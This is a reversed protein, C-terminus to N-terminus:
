GFTTDKSRYFGDGMYGISHQRPCLVSSLGIWDIIGIFQLHVIVNNEVLIQRWLQHKSYVQSPFQQQQHDAPKNEHRKAQHMKTM